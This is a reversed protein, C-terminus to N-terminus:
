IQNACAFILICLGRFQHLYAEVILITKLLKRYPPYNTIDYEGNRFEMALSDDLAIVVHAVDALIRQSDGSQMVKEYESALEGPRIQRYILKGYLVIFTSDVKHYHGGRSAWKVIEFLEYTQHHFNIQIIAGRIDEHIKRFTINDTM